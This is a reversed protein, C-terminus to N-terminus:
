VLLITPLTLHTYSVAKLMMADHEFRAVLPAYVIEIDDTGGYDGTSYHSSLSLDLDAGRAEPACAALLGAFLIAALSRPARLRRAQVRALSGRPRTERRTSSFRRRAAVLGSRAASTRRCPM